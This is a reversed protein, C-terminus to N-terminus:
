MKPWYKLTERMLAGRPGNKRKECERKSMPIKNEAGDAFIADYEGIATPDYGVFKLIPSPQQWIDRGGFPLNLIDASKTTEM